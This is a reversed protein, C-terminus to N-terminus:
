FVELDVVVAASSNLNLTLEPMENSDQTDYIQSFVSRMRIIKWGQLKRGLKHNIVNNGVALSVNQLMSSDLIPNSLLPNLISAWKTQLQDPPLQKPLQTM